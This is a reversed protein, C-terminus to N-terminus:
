VTEKGSGTRLSDIASLAEERYENWHKGCFRPCEQDECFSEFRSGCEFEKHVKKEPMKERCADLTSNQIERAFADVCANQKRELEGHSTGSLKWFAALFEDRREELTKTTNAEKKDLTEM